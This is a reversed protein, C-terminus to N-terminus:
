ASRLGAITEEGVYQIHPKEDIPLLEKPMAKTALLFRTDFGAVLLVAKRVPEM